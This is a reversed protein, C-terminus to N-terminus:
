TKGNRHKKRYARCKPSDTHARETIHPSNVRTVASATVAVIATAMYQLKLAPVGM